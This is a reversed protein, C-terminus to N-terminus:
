KPIPGSPLNNSGAELTVRPIPGSPLNTSGSAFSIAFNTFIVLALTVLVAVLRKLTKRTNM